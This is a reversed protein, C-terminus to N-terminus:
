ARISASNLQELLSFIARQSQKLYKADDFIEAESQVYDGTPLGQPELALFSAVTGTQAELHFQLAWIKKGVSFGQYPTIASSAFATAGEPLEFCDSHWSLPKFIEPMWTACQNTKTVPYWGIEPQTNKIVKAHMASAILQGGLCIGLVIKDAAIADSILQKEPALWPYIDEDNVSMPGGMIMLWDFEDVTPLVSNLDLRYTQLLFDKNTFWEQMSGIWEGHAHQLVAVKQM